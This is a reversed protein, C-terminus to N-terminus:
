RKLQNKIVQMIWTLINKTFFNWHQLSFIVVKNKIEYNKWCVEKIAKQVRPNERIHTINNIIKEQENPGSLENKYCQVIAALYDAQLQTNLFAMGKESTVKYLQTYLIEVQRYMTPKYTHIISENNMRYYYDANEDDVISIINCDCFVPIMINIDEGYSVRLDCYKLNKRILETRIMKGWRSLPLGRKQFGGANIMRPYLEREIREKSYVGIENTNKGRVSTSENFWRYNGVVIDAKSRKQEADYVRLMNSAIYDDSDVFVVFETKVHELGCIWASMLGGNKKHITEIISNRSAYEDCIEACGDTSGDDVIIVKYDKYNQNIISDLSRRLYKKVNYVPVIVTIKEKM